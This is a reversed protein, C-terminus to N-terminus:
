PLNFVKITNSKQNVVYFHGDDDLAIAVPQRFLPKTISESGFSRLWNGDNDFVQIRGLSYDTIYVQGQDDIAIGEPIGTVEIDAGMGWATIFNGQADFKQVRKNEYDSVFINGHADV